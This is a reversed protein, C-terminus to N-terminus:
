LSGEKKLIEKLIEKMELENKNKISYDFNSYNELAIETEHNKEEETLDYVNQDNLVHISITKYHSLATIEEKLRVDSIIVVDVLHEYIELDQQMREIFYNPNHSEHRVYSGFDQLFKRPKPESGDWGILEKAFMKIYKSYETIVVKQKKEELLEKTMRAALTKGSRAKGAILIVLM